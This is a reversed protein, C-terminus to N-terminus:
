WRVVVVDAATHAAAIVLDNEFHCCCCSLRARQGFLAPNKLAEEGVAAVVDFADAAAAAM